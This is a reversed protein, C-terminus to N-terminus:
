ITVLTAGEPVDNPDVVSKLDVVVGGPALLTDLYRALHKRYRDHPVAVVVADYLGEFVGERLLDVCPEGIGPFHYDDALASYKAAVVDEVDVECGRARLSRVLDFVKSNRLDNVDEKFTCGLVAVRAGGYFGRESSKLAEITRHSVYKPMDENVRRALSVLRLPKGLSDGLMMLYYPDVGVCHGGVLGPKYKAFNWKTGAAELVDATNIGAVNFLQALENMLAINVDRQINEIVKAAEAVRISSAKHIPAVKEYVAAVRELTEADEGSVIKIVNELTHVKDGPNIREPSYGLKFESRDLGSVDEIVPSCVDETVGPFVTSEYVVVADPQILKGVTESASMLPRFDPSTDRNVPTPVAVIFFTRDKVEDLKSTVRLSSSTLESADLEGTRDFGRKIEDVKLTDVDFGVVDLFHKSLALALPLGVYGLGIVVIRESM